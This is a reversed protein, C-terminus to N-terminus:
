SGSGGPPEAVPGRAARWEPRLLGMWLTDSVEGAVRYRDRLIGEEKFGLRLLLRRSAANRPDLDAEVRHLDLRAFGHDLVAALAETMFGHGWHPRGLLYGLEARRHVPELNFLSCVGILRDDGALALAWRLATGDALSEQARAILARADFSHVMPPTSWYRMTEPHSFFAFLADADDGRLGRLVLRPTRLLPLELPARTM